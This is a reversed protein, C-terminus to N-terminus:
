GAKRSSESKWDSERKQLLTQPNRDANRRADIAKAVAHCRGAKMESTWLSFQGYFRRADGGRM